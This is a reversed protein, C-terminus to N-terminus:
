KNSPPSSIPSSDMRNPNFSGPEGDLSSPQRFDSSLDDLPSGHNLLYHNPITGSQIKNFDIKTPLKKTIITNKLYVEFDSPCMCWPNMPHPKVEPIAPYLPATSLPHPRGDIRATASEHKLLLDDLSLPDIKDRIDVSDGFVSRIEDSKWGQIFEWALIVKDNDKFVLVEEAKAPVAATFLFVSVQIIIIHLYRMKLEM